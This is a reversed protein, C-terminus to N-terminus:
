DEPRPEAEDGPAIEPEAPVATPPGAVRRMAGPRAPKENAVERVAPQREKAAQMAILAAKVNDGSAVIDGQRLTPDNAV